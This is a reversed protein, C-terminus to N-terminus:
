QWNQAASTGDHIWRRLLQALLVGWYLPVIRLNRLPVPFGKWSWNPWRTHGSDSWNGGQLINCYNDQRTAPGTPRLGWGSSDCNAYSGLPSSLWSRPRLQEWILLFQHCNRTQLDTGGGTTQQVSAPHWTKRHFSRAVKGSDALRCWFLHHISQAGIRVTLWHPAPGVYQSFFFWVVIWLICVNKM